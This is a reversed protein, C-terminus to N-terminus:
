EKWGQCLLMLLPSSELSQAINPANGVDLHLLRSGLTVTKQVALRGSRIQLTRLITGSRQSHRTSGKGARLWPAVSDAHNRNAACFLKRTPEPAKPVEPSLRQNLGPNFADDAAIWAINPGDPCTDRLLSYCQLYAGPLSTVPRYGFHKIEDAFL